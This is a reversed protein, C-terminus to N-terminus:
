EKRGFDPRFLGVWQRTGLNGFTVLVYQTSGQHFLVETLETQYILPM